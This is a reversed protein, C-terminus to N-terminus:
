ARGVRRTAPVGPPVDAGDCVLAAGLSALRRSTATAMPIVTMGETLESVDEVMAKTVYSAIPGCAGEGEIWALMVPASFCRVLAKMRILWAAQVATVVRDLVHGHATGLAQMLHGTYHIDIWEMGPAEARLDTSVSVVRDNRRPHVRYYRNSTNAASPLCVVVADARRAKPIIDPMQFVADPGSNPVRLDCVGPITPGSPFVSTAGVLAVSPPTDDLRPRM